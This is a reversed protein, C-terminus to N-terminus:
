GPDRTWIAILGCDRRDGGGFEVPMQAPGDYKEIAEIEQPSPLADLDFDDPLQLGDLLIRMRCAARNTGGPRFDLSHFAQAPTRGSVVHTSGLPTSNDRYVTVGPLTALIDRTGSGARKEIQERTVFDGLGAARRRDFEARRQTWRTARVRVTDLAVAAAGGGAAFRIERPAPMEPRLRMPVRLRRTGLRLELHMPTDLPLGCFAFLGDDGTVTWLRREVSAVHQGGAPLAHDRWVATVVAGGVPEDTGPDKLVGVHMWRRSLDLSDGCQRRVFAAASDAQAGAAGPLALLAVLSALPLRFSPM